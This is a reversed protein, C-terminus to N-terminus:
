GSTFVIEALPRISSACARFRALPSATQVFGGANRIKGFNERSVVNSPDRALDKFISEVSEFRALEIALFHLTESAACVIFRTPSGDCSKMSRDFVNSKERAVPEFHVGSRHFESPLFDVRDARRIEPSSSRNSAAQRGHNALRYRPGIPSSEPLLSM